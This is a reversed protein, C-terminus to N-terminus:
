DSGEDKMKFFYDINENAESSFYKKLLGVGNNRVLTVSSICPERFVESSIEIINNRINPFNVLITTLCEHWAFVCIQDSLKTVQFPDIGSQKLSAIKNMIVPLDVKSYNSYRELYGPTLSNILQIKRLLINCIEEDSDCFTQFLNLATQMAFAPYFLSLTVLEDLVKDILPLKYADNKKKALKIYESVSDSFDNNGNDSSGANASLIGIPLLPNFPDGKDFLAAKVFSPRMEPHEELENLLTDRSHLLAKGMRKILEKDEARRILYSFISFYQRHIRLRNLIEPQKITENKLAGKSLMQDLIRVCSSFEDNGQIIISVMAFYNRWADHAELFGEMYKEDDITITNEPSLLHMMKITLEKDSNDFSALVGLDLRSFNWLQNLLPIVVLGVAFLFPDTFQCNRNIIDNKFFSYLSGNEIRVSSLREKLVSEIKKVMKLGNGSKVPSDYSTFILPFARFIIKYLLEIRIASERFERLGFKILMGISRLIVRALPKWMGPRKLLILFIKGTIVTYSENGKFVTKRADREKIYSLIKLTEKSLAIVNVFYHIQEEYRLYKRDSVAPTKRQNLLISLINTLHIFSDNFRAFGAIINLLQTHHYKRKGSKGSASRFLRTYLFNHVRDYNEGSLEKLTLVNIIHQDFHIDAPCKWLIKELSIFYQAINKDYLSFLCEEVFGFLAESQIKLAYDYMNEISQSAKENRIIRTLLIKYASNFTKAQELVSEIEVLTETKLFWNNSILVEVKSRNIAHNDCLTSILIANETEEFSKSYQQYLYDAISKHYIQYKKQHGSIHIPRIIELIQEVSLIIQELQLDPLIKKVFEEAVPESCAAFVLAVRIVPIESNSKIIRLLLYDYYDHLDNPIDTQSGFKIKGELLDNVLYQLYQANGQSKECVIDVIKDSLTYKPIAQWLVARVSNKDLPKLEFSHIWPASRSFAKELIQEQRRTFYLFYINRFAVAPLIDLTNKSASNAAEDLGDIIILIKKGTKISSSVAQQLMSLMISKVEAPNSTNLDVPQVMGATRLASYITIFLSEPTLTSPQNYVFLHHIKLFDIFYNNYLYVSMASKGVGPDGTVYWIGNEKTVIRNELEIAEQERGLVMEGLRQRLYESEDPYQNYDPLLEAFALYSDNDIIKEATSYDLFTLKNRHRLKADNYLYFRNGSHLMFPFINLNRNESDDHHSIFPLGSEGVYLNHEPIVAAKDLLEHFLPLVQDLDQEILLDSPTSGHAYENRVNILFNIAEPVNKITQKKNRFELPYNLKGYVPDNLFYSISSTFPYREKTMRKSIDFLIQWWTGLSPTYLKKLLNSRFLHDKDANQSVPALYEQIAVVTLFKIFEEFADILRHIKRFPQSESDILEIAHNLTGPLRFKGTSM